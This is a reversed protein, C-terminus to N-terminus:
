RFPKFEKKKIREKILERFIPEGTPRNNEDIEFLTVLINKGKDEEVKDLIWHRTQENKKNVYTIYTRRTAKYFPTKKFAKVKRALPSLQNKM